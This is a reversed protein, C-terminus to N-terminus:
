ETPEADGEPPEDRVLRAGRARLERLVARAVERAQQESVFTFLSRVSAAVLAVAEEASLESDTHM